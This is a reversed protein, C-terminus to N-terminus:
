LWRTRIYTYGDQSQESGGRFFPSFTRRWGARPTGSRATPGRRRRAWTGYLFRRARTMAVYLLRREEDLSCDPRPVIGEELATIITAQVTLGKAGGMTMIRVGSSEAQAIDRALPSIQNLYRGLSLGPESVRDIRELLEIMEDNPRPLVSDDGITRIWEGWGSSPSEASLPHADIWTLLENILSHARSCSVSPGNPFDERHAALLASGFQSRSNKALEYIYYFFGDGIGSTIKLLAAWALSDYRNILLRLMEVVQRNTSDELIRNVAEPDSYPVNRLQLQHKIPNSFSSHFDGRLLVLIEGASIGEREILAHVIDAIGEAESSENGFALLAVEGSECSESSTLRPRDLRRDPDGEIIHSAWELIRGGCRQSISLFYDNAGPYEELFRRIGEPAAKRFSYISQDDDGAAIISCGRQSLLKIVELDCANLDQYEDVILVDYDVGQLDPHDRLAGLLAYPLEALLTYGLIDRNEQWAGLFRVRENPDIHTDEHRRLSEWNAAMERILRDLRKVSVGARRALSPRVIRQDEWDDAIRLPAPLSAAGPNQLLVSIAFSHITSPRLAAAVSHESVKKALESTAARTFTLLRVKPATTEGLLKNVLAVLTASKGTGPGAVVRCHQGPRYALITEQESTLSFTPM